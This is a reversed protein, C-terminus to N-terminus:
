SHVPDDSFVQILPGRSARSKGYPGDKTWLDKLTTAHALDHNCTGKECRTYPDKPEVLAEAWSVFSSLKVYRDRDDFGDDDDGNIAEYLVYTDGDIGVFIDLVRRFIFTGDRRKRSYIEWAVIEDARVTVV